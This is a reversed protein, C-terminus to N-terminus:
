LAVAVQEYFNIVFEELESIFKKPSNFSAKNFNITHRVTIKSLSENRRVLGDILCESFYNDKKKEDQLLKFSVPELEKERGYKLIVQINDENSSKELKKILATIQKISKGEVIEPSISIDAKTRCFDVELSVINKSDECVFQTCIKCYDKLSKIIKEKHEKPEKIKIKIPYSFITDVLHKNKLSSKYLQFCVDQEEQMWLNAVRELSEKNSKKESITHVDDKWSSGMSDFHSVDVDKHDFYKLLEELIYIQEPEFENSKENEEIIELIVREIYTWSWHHHNIKRVKLDFSVKIDNSITILDMEWDKAIEIYRELQGKDLDAKLKTEILAGWSIIPNGKGTTLLLLSDPKDRKGDKDKVSIEDYSLLNATNNNIKNTINKM